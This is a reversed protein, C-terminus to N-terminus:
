ILNIESSQNLWDARNITWHKIINDADVAIISLDQWENWYYLQKEWLSLFACLPETFLHKPAISLVANCWGEDRSRYEVIDIPLNFGNMLDDHVQSLNDLIDASTIM